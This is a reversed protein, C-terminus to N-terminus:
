LRSLIQEDHGGVCASDADLSTPVVERVCVISGYVYQRSVKKQMTGIERQQIYNAATNLCTYLCIHGKSRM